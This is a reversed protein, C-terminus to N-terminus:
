AAVTEALEAVQLDRFLWVGLEGLGLKTEPGLGTSSAVQGEDSSDSPQGALYDLLSTRAPAGDAKGISQTRLTVDPTAVLATQLAPLTVIDTSNGEGIVDRIAERLFHEVSVPAPPPLQEALDVAMLVPVIEKPISRYSAAASPSYLSQRWWLLATRRREVELLKDVRSLSTKLAARVAKAHDRLTEQLDISFQGLPEITAAIAADLSVAVAASARLGFDGVWPGNQSPWHPNGDQYQLGSGNPGAAAGLRNALAQRNTKFAELSPTSIRPTPMREPESLTQSWIAEAHSQTATGLCFLFDDIVQAEGGLSAHPRYSATALWVIAAMSVNDETAAELARLIVGRLVNVPSDDFKNRITKWHTALASEAEVIVPDESSIGPDLLVLAFRAAKAPNKRLTGDLDAAARELYEFKEDDDGIPLLGAELYRQLTDTM